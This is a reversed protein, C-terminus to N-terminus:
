RWLPERDVQRRPKGAALKNVYAWQAMVGPHVPVETVQHFRKPAHVPVTPPATTPDHPGYTLVDTM